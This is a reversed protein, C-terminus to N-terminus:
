VYLRPAIREELESVKLELTEADKGTQEKIQAKQEPTLNIRVIEKNTKM